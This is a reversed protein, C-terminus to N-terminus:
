TRLEKILKKPDQRNDWFATIVINNKVNKYFISYHGLSIVRTDPYDAKQGSHPYSILQEIRDESEYLLKLSFDSSGTKEVWYELIIRRQKAATKTWIVERSAM